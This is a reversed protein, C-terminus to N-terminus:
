RPRGALFSNQKLQQDRRKLEDEPWQARLEHAIKQLSFNGRVATQVMNREQSDLGSDMLLYWGQLFDPLLEPSTQLWEEDEQTNNWGSTSSNTGWSSHRPQWSDEPLSEYSEEREQRQGNMMPLQLDAENEQSKLIKGNGGITEDMPGNGGHRDGHAGVGRLKGGESPKM